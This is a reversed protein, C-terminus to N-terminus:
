RYLKDDLPLNDSLLETGKSNNYVVELAQKIKTARCFQVEANGLVGYELAGFYRFVPEFKGFNVSVDPIIPDFWRLHRSEVNGDQYVIRATIGKETLRNPINLMEDVCHICTNKEQGVGILLIYGDEKFINGYCGDPHTPSDVYKENKVFESVRHKEGFVTMSHTPHLSRVGNKRGAAVTPLVGICSEAKNLNLELQRWTHTPICLLGDNTTFHEILVDLLIDAGGDIEGIAKLSTHVIVPKGESKFNRLEKLLEAKTIM